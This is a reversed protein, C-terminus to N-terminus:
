SIGARNLGALSGVEDALRRAADPAALFGAKEKMSERLKGDKLLRAIASYLAAGSFSKEEIMIAANMSALFGANRVQHGGAFPYPILVAPIKSACLEFIASSGARSISMDATDYIVGMDKFFPYLKYRVDIGKYEKGLREYDGSGSIHIVQVAERLKNEMHKFADIVTLNIMRSGQSGGMVLITFKNRDLGLFDISNNRNGSKVIGKRIPNGTIVTKEKKFRVCKPFSYAIRTAFYRMIRNAKGLVFNQEHILTPVGLLSAAAFPPGSVYAGFGIFCDPRDKFLIKMSKLSSILLGATFNFNERLTRKKFGEVPLTHFDFGSENLLSRALKSDSTIFSIRVANGYREALEEALSFGPFIHGASGGCAILIKKRRPKDKGSM